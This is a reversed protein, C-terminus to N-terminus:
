PATSTHTRIARARDELALAEQHHGTGRLLGALDDLTRTLAPHGVGYVGEQIDLARRYFREALEWAHRMEYLHALDTCTRYLDPHRSGHLKEQVVLARRYYEEARDLRSELFHAYAQEYLKLGFQRKQLSDARVFDGRERCLAAARGLTVTISLDRQELREEQIALLHAYLSEARAMEGQTRHIDALQGLTALTPAADPGLHREQVELLQGYLSQARATHGRIVSVEALNRLTSQLRPDQELFAGAEALALGLSSDAAAYRGQELADLGAQHHTDWPGPPREEAQRSRCSVWSFLSCLLLRTGFRPLARVARSWGAPSLRSM